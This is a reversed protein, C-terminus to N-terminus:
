ECSSSPFLNAVYQPFRLATYCSLFHVRSFALFVAPLILFTTRIGRPSLHVPRNILSIVHLCPSDGVNYWLQTAGDICLSGYISLASPEKKTTYRNYINSGLIRSTRWRIWEAVVEEIGTSFIHLHIPPLYTKQQGWRVCNLQFHM